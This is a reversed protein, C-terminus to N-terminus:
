NIQFTPQRGTRTGMDTLGDAALWKVHGDAFLYNGGDMHRRAPPPSGCRSPDNNPQNCAANNAGQFGNKMGIFANTPGNDSTGWGSGEDVNHGTTGGSLGEMALVTAAPFRLDADNINAPAPSWGPDQGVGWDGTVRRNAAYQTVGVGWDSTSPNGGPARASPCKFLQANKAYPFIAQEWGWDKVLWPGFATPGPIQTSLKSLSMPYIGDYDQTYQTFSVGIQKLNNLCSTKRANERARAFVPFLIAALLAIIAIVVLLEILTFGRRKQFIM